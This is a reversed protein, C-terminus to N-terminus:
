PHRSQRLGGPLATAWGAIGGGVRCHQARGSLSFVEANAVSGGISSNDRDIALRSTKAASLAPAAMISIVTPDGIVATHPDDTYVPSLGNGHM